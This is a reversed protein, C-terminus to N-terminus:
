KVGQVFVVNSISVKTESYGLPGNMLTFSCFCYWLLGGIVKRQNVNV